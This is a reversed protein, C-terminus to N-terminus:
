RGTRRKRQRKFQRLAAKAFFQQKKKNPMDFSGWKPPNLKQSRRTYGFWNKLFNRKFPVNVKVVNQLSERRWNGVSLQPFHLADPTNGLYVKGGPAFGLKIPVSFEEFM